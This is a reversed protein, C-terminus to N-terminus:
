VGELFRLAGLRRGVGEPGSFLYAPALRQQQLAAALLAVAQGQGVLDAFLAEPPAVPM